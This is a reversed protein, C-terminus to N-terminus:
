QLFEDLPSPKSIKPTEVHIRARSSPTMGFEVLFAKMQILAKNAIALYPNPIPYGSPAKLMHGSQQLEREAQAWRAWTQCYAALAARDVLSLIRMLSLEVTIRNWERHAEECLHDPCEPVGQPADLDDIIPRKGPNGRLRKIEAPLPKRGRMENNNEM